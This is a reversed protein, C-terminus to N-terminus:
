KLFQKEKEKDFSLNNLTSSFEIEYIHYITVALAVMLPGVIVGWFGFLAIGGLISFFVFIPNIEAKDKIM